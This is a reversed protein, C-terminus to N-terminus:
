HHTSHLPRKLVKCTPNIFVTVPPPWFFLRYYPILNSEPSWFAGSSLRQYMGKTKWGTWWRVRRWIHGISPRWLGETHGGGPSVRTCADERASRPSIVVFRQDGAGTPWAPAPPPAPPSASLVPFARLQPFHVRIAPTAKSTAEPSVAGGHPGAWGALGREERAGPSRAPWLVWSSSAKRNM